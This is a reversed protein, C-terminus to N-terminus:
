KNKIKIFHGIKGVRQNLEQKWNAQVDRTQRENDLEKVTKRDGDILRLTGIIRHYREM